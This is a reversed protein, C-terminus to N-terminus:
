PKRYRRKRPPGAIRPPAVILEDRAKGITLAVGCKRCHYPTRLSRLVREYDDYEIQTDCAPCKWPPM